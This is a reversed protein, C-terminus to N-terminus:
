KKTLKDKLDIAKDELVDEWLWAGGMYGLAFAMGLAVNTLFNKM